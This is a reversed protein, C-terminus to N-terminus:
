RGRLKRSKVKPQSLLRIKDQRRKAELDDPSVDLIYGFVEMADDYKKMKIYLEGLEHYNNVNTPDKDIRQLIKKELIKRDVGLIADETNDIVQRKNEVDDLNDNGGLSWEEISNDDAKKIDVNKKKNSKGKFLGKIFSQKNISENDGNGKTASDVIVNDDRLFMEKLVSDRGLTKDVQEDKEDNKKIGIKKSDLQNDEKLILEDRAKIVDSKSKKKAKIAWFHIKQTGRKLKGIFWELFFMISQKLKTTLKRKGDVGGNQIDRVIEKDVSKLSRTIVVVVILVSILAVGAIISDVINM